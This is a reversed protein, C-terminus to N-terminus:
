NDGTKPRGMPRPPLLDRIKQRSISNRPFNMRASALAPGERLEGGIKKYFDFWAQLATASIPPGKQEQDAENPQEPKPAPTAIARIAEPEFRVDFHRIAETNSTGYV